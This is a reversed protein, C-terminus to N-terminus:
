ACFGLTIKQNQAVEPVEVDESLITNLESKTANEFDSNVLRSAQAMMAKEITTRVYRGNGFEPNKRATSFIDLLKEETGEGLKMGKDFAIKTAIELLEHEDYNPFPVYFSIRSRLGPNKQLFQEMKDPYGAFIVVVNDRNNEMEQVITNIAEDGFLGDKGDVLAYAEDIFLVGGKAKKFAKQVLPATHGVYKGVLDGRGVEVIHGSSLLENERMIRAFLRAVTTKATGPDGTFIMHLSPRERVIEKAALFKQMKHYDIAQKIEKKAAALGIMSMLEDYANGKPQEKAEQSKLDVFSEYQPYIETKLKNSFWEDFLVRLEKTFYTESKDLKLFLGDDVPINNEAAFLEFMQKSRKFPAAKEEIEVFSLNSLNEFLYNKLQNCEQPLLFVALVQNRYHEITECVKALDDMSRSAYNSELNEINEPEFIMVGGKNMEFLSKLNGRGVGQNQSFAYHCVRRNTLRKKKFLAQTLLKYTSRATEEDGSRILYHVPHGHLGEIVPSKKIRSMECRLDGSTLLMKCSDNMKKYSPLELLTEDFRVHRFHRDTIGNLGFDSYVDDEDEIFNKRDARKLLDCYDAFTIEEAELDRARIELEKLYRECIEKIDVNNRSLTTMRIKKDDLRSVCIFTENNAKNFEETKERIVESLEWQRDRTKLIEMAKGADMGASVKTIKAQVKYFKM